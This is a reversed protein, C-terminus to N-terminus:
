PQAEELHRLDALSNINRFTYADAFHVEVCRQAAHWALVKRGGNEIYSQLSPLLSVRLLCCAPHPRHTADAGTAAYALDAGSEALAQALRNVLDLPLAPVDCPVCAAWPTICQRLGAHIGALPGPFDPFSDTVVPMGFARYSDLNRNASICVSGVQPRLRELAHQALARGGLLQLGKDSDNMRSGRGGALVLGTIDAPAIAPAM